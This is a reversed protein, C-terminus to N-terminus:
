TAPRRPRLAQRRRSAASRIARGASRRGARRRLPRQSSDGPRAAIRAQRGISTSAPIDATHEAGDSRRCCSCRPATRACSTASSRRRMDRLRRRSSEGHPHPGPAGRLRRDRRARSRSDAVRGISDICATMTYRALTRGRWRAHARPPSPDDDTSSLGHLDDCREGQDGRQGRRTWRALRRGAAFAVSVATGPM